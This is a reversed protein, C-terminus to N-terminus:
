GALGSRQRGAQFWWQHSRGTDLFCLLRRFPARRVDSEELPRDLSLVFGSEGDRIGTPLEFVTYFLVALGTALLADSFTQTSKDVVYTEHEM